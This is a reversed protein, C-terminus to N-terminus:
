FRAKHIIKSLKESCTEIPITTSYFHSTLSFHSAVNQTPNSNRSQKQINKLYTLLDSCYSPDKYTNSNSKDSYTAITIKDANDNNM